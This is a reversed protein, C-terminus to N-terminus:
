SPFIVSNVFEICHIIQNKRTKCEGSQQRAAAKRSRSPFRILDANRDIRENNTPPLKQIVALDVVRFFSMKRLYTEGERRGGLCSSAIIALETGQQKALTLRHIYPLTWSLEGLSAHSACHANSLEMVMTSLRNLPENQM